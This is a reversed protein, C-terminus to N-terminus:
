SVGLVCFLIVTTTPLMYWVSSRMLFPRMGRTLSRMALRCHDCGAWTYLIMQAFEYQLSLQSDQVIPRRCYKVMMKKISGDTLGGTLSNFYKIAGCTLTTLSAAGSVTNYAAM